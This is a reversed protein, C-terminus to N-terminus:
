LKSQPQTSSPYQPQPNFAWETRPCAVGGIPAQICCSPINFDDVVKLADDKVSRCMELLQSRIQRSTNLTLYNHELYWAREQYVLSTGHLCFKTLLARDEKIHCQRVALAFQELTVRHIHAMALTTVHHLCANWAMFFEDKNKEVKNYHRSALSRQLVRERYSLAKLLFMLDGVKDVCAALVSVATKCVRLTRGRATPKSDQSSLKCLAIAKFTRVRVCLMMWWVQLM